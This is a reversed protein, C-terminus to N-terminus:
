QHLACFRDFSTPTVVATNAEPYANTFARTVRHKKRTNWKMEFASLQNGETEVYDVESQNYNRWFYGKRDPAIWSNMKMRESIVFNEWLQGVDQRISLDDYNGIVANRIGNDWFFIKNMKSIEKRPNTSYAPLRFIVFSKELLDIYIDVTESSVQLQNSLEHISVESGVQYSLLKLLKDLLQPKRIDKWVLVDKYLYQNSLNKLLTEAENQHKFIDPYNGYVLHFPLKNEIEFVSEDKYIEALTFPYLHFLLYRGTLPEFIRESIDLASSGTAIFQVNKFHDALIKLLLGANEIRQVEDIIVTKYNGVVNELAAVDLESLRTRVRTEDANLWLVKQDADDFMNQLMTTKGVQRAGTIVLAKGKNLWKQLVNQAIRGFVEM